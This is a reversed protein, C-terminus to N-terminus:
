NNPSKVTDTRAVWIPIARGIAQNVAIPGFYRSDFSRSDNAVLLLENADLRRCGARSPLSRGVGDLVHAHLELGPAILVRRGFRCVRTGPRGVATKLLLASRPVYGRAVAMKAYEESLRALVLHGVRPPASVILYAGAPASPSANWVVRPVPAKGPLMLLCAGGTTALM